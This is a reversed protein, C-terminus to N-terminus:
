SQFKIVTSFEKRKGKQVPPLPPTFPPIVIDKLERDDWDTDEETEKYWDYPDLYM